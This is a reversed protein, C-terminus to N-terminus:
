RYRPLHTHSEVHARPQCLRAVYLAKKNDREIARRNALVPDEPKRRFTVV